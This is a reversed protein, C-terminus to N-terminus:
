LKNNLYKDSDIYLNCTYQNKDNLLDYAVCQNDKDCKKKCDKLNPKISKNKNNNIEIYQKQLEKPNKVLQWDSHTTCPTKCKYINGNNSKGCIYKGCNTISTETPSFNNDFSEITNIFEGTALFKGNM